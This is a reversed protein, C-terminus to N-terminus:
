PRRISAARGAPLLTLLQQRWSSLALIRVRIGLPPQDSLRKRKGDRRERQHSAPWLSRSAASQYVPRRRLCLRLGPLATQSVIFFFIFFFVLLLLLGQFGSCRKKWRQQKGGPLCHFTETERSWLWLESRQSVCSCVAPLDFTPHPSSLSSLSLSFFTLFIPILTTILIIVSEQCDPNFCSM